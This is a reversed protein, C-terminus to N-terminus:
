GAFIVDPRDIATQMDARRKATRRKGTAPDTWRYVGATHQVTVGRYSRVPNSKVGTVKVLKRGVLQWDHPDVGADALMTDAIDFDHATTTKGHWARLLARTSPDLGDRSRRPNTKALPGGVRAHSGKRETWDLVARELQDYGIRSAFGRVAAAATPYERTFDDGGHQIVVYGQHGGVATRHPGVSHTYRARAGKGQLVGGRTVIDVAARVAARDGPNKRVRQAKGKKRGRTYIGIEMPFVQVHVQYGQAKLARASQKLGEGDTGADRLTWTKGRHQITQTAIQSKFGGGCAPVPVFNGAADRCPATDKPNRRSAAKRKPSAKAGKVAVAVGYRRGPVEVRVATHGMAKHAKVRKGAQAFTLSDEAVEYTKGRHKIMQKEQLFADPQVVV